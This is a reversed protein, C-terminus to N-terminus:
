SHAVKLNLLQIAKSILQLPAVAACLCVNREQKDDEWPCKTPWKLFCSVPNSPDKAQDM